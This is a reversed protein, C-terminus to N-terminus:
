SEQILLLESKGSVANIAPGPRFPFRHRVELLSYPHAVRITTQGKLMLLFRMCYANAYELTHVVVLTCGHAGQRHVRLM